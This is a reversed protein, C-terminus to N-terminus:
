SPRRMRLVIVAVVVIALALGIGIEPGYQKMFDAAHDGYVVALYGQGVYRTGRGILVALGFKLPSVGAAGALLVFVKFPVPPPLLSPVVVALLGFRQYLAFARDLQKGQFRKRLM